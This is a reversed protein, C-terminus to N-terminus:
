NNHATSRPTTEFTPPYGEDYEPPYTKTHPFNKELEIERSLDTKKPIKKLGASYDAFEALFDALEVAYGEIKM